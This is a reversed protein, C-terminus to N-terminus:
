IQRKGHNPVLLDTMANGGRATSGLLLETTMENMPAWFDETEVHQYVSLTTQVSSHGLLESVVKTPYSSCKRPSRTASTTAGV